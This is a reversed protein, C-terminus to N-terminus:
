RKITESVWKRFNRIFTGDDTEDWRELFKVLSALPVSPFIESADTTKYKGDSQLLGVQLVQGDYRWLETVGISAYIGLKDLSSSTIDIEIALDPPPDKALDIDARGIIKDANQIWFCEDGELGKLDEPKRLTTAGGSIFPLEFYEALIGIMLGLLNKYREHILLPAM